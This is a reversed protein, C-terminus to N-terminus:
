ATPGTQRKDGARRLAASAAGGVVILAIALWTPDTDTVLM